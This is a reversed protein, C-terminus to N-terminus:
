MNTIKPVFVGAIQQNTLPPSQYSLVINAFVLTATAAAKINPATEAACAALSLWDLSRPPDSM